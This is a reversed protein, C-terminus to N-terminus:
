CNKISKMLFSILSKVYSITFPVFIIYGAGDPAWLGELRIKLMELSPVDVVERPMRHCCRLVSSCFLSEQKGLIALWLALQWIGM